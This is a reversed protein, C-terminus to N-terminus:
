SVASHHSCHQGSLRVPEPGPGLSPPGQGRSLWPVPPQPPSHRSGPRRARLLFLHRGASRPRTCGGLTAGACPVPPTSPLRRGTGGPPATVLTRGELGLPPAPPRRGGDWCPLSRRNNTLRNGASRPPFKRHADQARHKGLLGPEPHTLVGPRQQTVGPAPHREEVRVGETRAPLQASAATVRGSACQEGASIRSPAKLLLTRVKVTKM